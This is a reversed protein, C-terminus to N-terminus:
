SLVSISGREAEFVAETVDGLDEGDVQLPLPRDTKAGIRDLDHGRLANRAPRGTALAYLTAAADAADGVGTRPFRTGARVPRLRQRSRSRRSSRTANVNAVFVFRRARLGRGRAEAGAPRPRGVLVRAFASVFALDGPRARRTAPRADDVRRVVEADIGIARASRSGGTREVRGLSIRRMRDAELAEALQEAAAVPDRPLGLARPLVSTGGGPVFGLPLDNREIGNLAENFGGDGSFM